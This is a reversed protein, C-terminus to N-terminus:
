QYYCLLSSMVGTAFRSRAPLQPIVHPRSGRPSASTEHAQDTTDKASAMYGRIRYESLLGCGVVQGPNGRTALAFSNGECGPLKLHSAPLGHCLLQQPLQALPARVQGLDSIGKDGVM